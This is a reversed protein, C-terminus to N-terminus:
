QEPVSNSLCMESVFLCCCFLMYTVGSFQGYKSLKTQLNISFFSIVSLYVLECAQYIRCSDGFDLGM